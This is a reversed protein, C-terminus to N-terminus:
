GKKNKLVIPEPQNSPQPTPQNTTTVNEGVMTLGSTKKKGLFITDSM